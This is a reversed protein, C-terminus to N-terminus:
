GTSPTHCGETSPYKVRFTREVFMSEVYLHEIVLSLTDFVQETDLSASPGTV